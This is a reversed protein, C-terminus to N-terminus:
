NELVNQYFEIYKPLIKKWTFNNIVFNYGNLSIKEQLSRDPLLQNIKKLLIDPNEPEVLLGTENDKVLEPIGGVSTAIVPIKLYFAEKIVTPLSEMRSPVVLLSSSKMITMAEKWSVNTCYVVNGNIRSEIKKLIDIGKEYSDRGVYSVQNKVKKVDPIDNFKELEIPSPLYNVKIGFKKEYAKQVSQSDTTVVDAWEIAKSEALTTVKSPVSSHILDLQESYLGHLSIVKKKAKVYKMVLASPANFGHVVDYKKKLQLAKLVGFVAFSLNKLNKIPIHPVQFLDIEFGSDQLKQALLAAHGGIGGEFSPSIFLIKM